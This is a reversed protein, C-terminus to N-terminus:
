IRSSVKSVAAQDEKSISCRGLPWTHTIDSWFWHISGPAVSFWPPSNMTRIDLRFKSTMYKQTGKICQIVIHIYSNTYTMHVSTQICSHHKHILKKQISDSKLCLLVWHLQHLLHVTQIEQWNSFHLLLRVKRNKCNLLSNYVSPFVDYTM